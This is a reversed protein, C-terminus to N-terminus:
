RGPALPKKMKHGMQTDRDRRRSEGVQARPAIGGRALRVQDLQTQVGHGIRIGLAREGAPGTRHDHGAARCPLSPLEAAGFLLAEPQEFAGPARGRVKDVDFELGPM